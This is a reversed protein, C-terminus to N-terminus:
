RYYDEWTEAEEKDMSSTIKSGDSTVQSEVLHSPHYSSCEIEFHEVHAFKTKGNYTEEKDFLTEMFYDKLDCKQYIFHINTATDDSLYIEVDFDSYKSSYSPNHYLEHAADYVLPKSGDIIGSLEFRPFESQGYGELQNFVKFTNIQEEGARFKFVVRLSIDNVSDSIESGTTQAFTTPQQFASLLIFFTVLIVMTPIVLGKQLKM